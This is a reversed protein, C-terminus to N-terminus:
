PLQAGRKETPSSLEVEVMDFSLNLAFPSQYDEIVPTASDRGIDLGEGTFRITPLVMPFKGEAMTAGDMQISVTAGRAKADDYRVSFSLKGGGMPLAKESVLRFKHKEQQSVAHGVVPKGDLIYFSWGGFRGGVAAVVGQAPETGPALTISITFDNGALDPAVDLPIVPMGRPYRFVKRDRNPTFILKRALVNDDLPYVNNVAAEREWVQRMERLKEPLRDALNTSQSYDEKLNYLEWRYDEAPDGKMVQTVNWPLRRPTTNAFWGDAYIGRNALMEFYQIKHCEPIGPNKLAAILSCGSLPLQEIGNVATPIEVGAAELLTPYVDVVHSFQSRLRDRQAAKLSPWSMVMGNRIGGLHSAVQKMWPFPANTAWAWGNPMHQFTTPGGLEDIKSLKYELSEEIGLIKGYENTTGEPGGEGSAGNDGQIFMVLTNATEGAEEVARLLRSIQHDSYALSASFVEMMRAYLRREDAGLSDWAPIEAPRPTLRTGKPIVGSALQRKHTQERLKDWGADFKGRYKEIWEKPAHHPAHATGTAYYIFFPRGSADARQMRMWQIAKDALDKDLHYGPGPKPVVSITNEYLQPAWHNMDAANFGYFYEFGMGVPWLDFPGSPGVQEPPTNHNKGFMATNYGNLKLVQAISAASKPIHGQYGPFGTALSPFFGNGVLHTNRGTLLAARTPSCIGTTHFRNFRVGQDAVQRFATTQVPGGFVDAAGFGVDDTMILIINPANRPARPREFPSPESEALNSGIRGQFGPDPVPLATQAGVPSAISAVALLTVAVAYGSVTKLRRYRAERAQQESDAKPQVPVHM